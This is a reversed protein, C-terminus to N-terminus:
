KIKLFSLYPLSIIATQLSFVSSGFILRKDTDSLYGTYLPNCKSIIFIAIVINVFLSINIITQQNVFTTIGFYSLGYLIFLLATFFIDTYQLKKSFFDNM